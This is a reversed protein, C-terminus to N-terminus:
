SIVSPDGGDSDEQVVPEFAFRAQSPVAHGVTDLRDRKRGTYRATVDMRTNLYAHMDEVQGQKVANQFPIPHLLPVLRHTPYFRGKISNEQLVIDERLLAWRWQKAPNVGNRWSTEEILAVPLQNDPAIVASDHVPDNGSILQYIDGIFQVVGPNTSHVLIERVGFVAAEPQTTTSGDVSTMRIRLADGLEVRESGLFIGYYNIKTGTGTNLRTFLSFSLDVKLAAMKSADLAFVQMKQNDTGVVTHVLTEWQVEDFSKNKLEEMTVTPVSFTHFPRMDSETKSVVPSFVIVRHGIPIIDYGSPKSANILGLRWNSGYKYWVQEGTRFLLPSNVVPMPLKNKPKPVPVAAAPPTPTPIPIPIPIPVPTQVPTPTPLVVPAPAPAPAPAPIPTPTPVLTPVPIPVPIPVPTATVAPIQVAPPLVSTVPTAIHTPPMAPKAAASTGAAPIAADTNKKTRNNSRALAAASAKVTPPLPIPTTSIPPPPAIPPPEIVLSEVATTTVATLDDTSLISRIVVPKINCNICCCDNPDHSNSLLWLLHVGFEQPSKFLKTKVPYGSVWLHKSKEYLWYGRPFHVYWPSGELIAKSNAFLQPCSLLTPSSV